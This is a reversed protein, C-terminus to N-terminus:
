SPSFGFICPSVGHGAKATKVGKEKAFKTTKTCECRIDREDMFDGFTQAYEKLGSLRIERKPKRSVM